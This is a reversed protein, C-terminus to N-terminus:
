AMRVATEVYESCLDRFEMMEREEFPKVKNLEPDLTNRPRFQQLYFKDAGTLMRAMAVVDEKTHLGPVITSRFEHKVDSGILLSISERIKGMDANAGAAKQYKDAPGKIDMAVYDVLRKEMLSKLMGPNTGNTDLKVLYDLGKVKELFGPLEKHLTPEGGSIVAGDLWDKRAKLFDLVQEEPISDMNEHDLVLERNHCFPCRFNCGGLFVVASIRGPYDILSTKEIGKIPIM